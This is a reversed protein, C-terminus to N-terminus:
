DTVAKTGLVKIEIGAFTSRDRFLIWEMEGGMRMSFPEGNFFSSVLIETGEHPGCM